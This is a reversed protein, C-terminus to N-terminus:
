FSFGASVEPYGKNERNKDSNAFEQVWGLSMFSHMSTQLSVGIRGGWLNYDKFPDDIFTQNYFAGIYPRYTTGEVPLHYTVPVTVENISPDDGLYAQYSAGISLNDVVFYNVKAGVVMYDNGFSQSSGLTFSLTKNGGSFLTDSAYSSLTLLLTLIIKNM